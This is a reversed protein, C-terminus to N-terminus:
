KNCDPHPQPLTTCIRQICQMQRNNDSKYVIKMMAIIGFVLIVYFLPSRTMETM